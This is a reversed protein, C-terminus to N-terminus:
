NLLPMMAATGMMLANFQQPDYPNYMPIQPYYLTQGRMPGLPMGISDVTIPISPNSGPQAPKSPTQTTGSSISQAQPSLTTVSKVEPTGTIDEPTGKGKGEERPAQKNFMVKPRQTYAPKAKNAKSGAPHIGAQLPCIELDKLDDKTKGQYKKIIDNFYV